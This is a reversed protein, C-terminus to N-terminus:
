SFQSRLTIIQREIGALRDQAALISRETETLKATSAAIKRDLSDFSVQKQVLQSDYAAQADREAKDLIMERKKLAEQIGAEASTKATLATDRDTVAKNSNISIQDLQRQATILENRLRERSNGIQQLETSANRLALVAEAFPVLDELADTTKSM